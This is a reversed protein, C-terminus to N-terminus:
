MGTRGLLPSDFARLARGPSFYRAEDFMGYTPLHVKRHIHVVVPRHGPGLRLYAASNYCQRGSSLEVFGLVVDLPTRRGASLGDFLECLREAPVAVQPVWDRLLYGTLSLEPFIVLDSGGGWADAMVQRHLAVNDELRGLRPAIQALTVRM